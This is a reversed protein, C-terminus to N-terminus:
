DRRRSASKRESRMRCRRFFEASSLCFLKSELSDSTRGKSGNMPKSFEAAERQSDAMQSIFTAQTQALTAQSHALERLADDLQGNSNTQAKAM